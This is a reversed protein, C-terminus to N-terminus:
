YSKRKRWPWYNLSIGQFNGNGNFHIITKGNKVGSLGGSKILASFIEKYKDIDEVRANETQVEIEFHFKMTEM